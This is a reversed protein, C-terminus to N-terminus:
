APPRPRAGKAQDGAGVAARAREARRCSRCSPTRIRRPRSWRMAQHRATSSSAGASTASVQARGFAAELQRLTLEVGARLQEPSANAAALTQELADKVPLLDTAFKEIAFRHARGVDAAAQRRINEVDARARLWDNRLEEVEGEAKRLLDLLDPAPDAPQADAVSDAPPAAPVEPVAPLAADGQPDTPKTDQM